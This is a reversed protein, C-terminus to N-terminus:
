KLLELMNSHIKGNTALCEPVFANFKGGSFNTVRGGAENVILAGASFDWPEDVQDVVAEARGLAVHALSTCASSLVEVNAVEGALKNLLTLDRKEWYTELIFLSNEIPKDSVKTTVGNALASKGKIATLFIGEKPLGIVGLVIEKKYELAIQVAFTPIGRMFNETGDLPDVIWTYEKRNRENEEEAYLGFDPTNTTLIERIIRQSERDAETVPTGDDKIATKLTSKQFVELLYDSAKKTATEAVRLYEDFNM